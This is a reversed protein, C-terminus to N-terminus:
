FNGKEFFCRDSLGVAAKHTVRKTVFFDHICFNYLEDVDVFKIKIMKKMQSLTLLCQDNIRSESV